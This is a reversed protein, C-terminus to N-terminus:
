SGSAAFDQAYPNESWFVVVEEDSLNRLSKLMLLGVMRRIALGPRGDTCYLSGFAKEFVSWDIARALRFLPNRPDLQRELDPLLFSTQATDTRSPQMIASQLTKTPAPLNKRCDLVALIMCLVNDLFLKLRKKYGFLCSRAGAYRHRLSM